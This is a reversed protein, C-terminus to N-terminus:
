SFVSSAHACMYRSYIIQSQFSGSRPSQTHTDTHTTDSHTIIMHPFSHEGALCVCPHRGMLVFRWLLTHLCLAISLLICLYAICYVLLCVCVAHACVCVQPSPGVTIFQPISDTIHIFSSHLLTLRPFLRRQCTLRWYIRWVEVNLVSFFFSLLSPSFFFLPAYCLYSNLKKTVLVKSIYLILQFYICSRWYDASNLRHTFFYLVTNTRIPIFM